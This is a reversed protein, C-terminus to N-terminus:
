LANSKLESKVISGTNLDVTIVLTSGYFTGVPTYVELNHNNFAPFSEVWECGWSENPYVNYQKCLPSSAAIKLAEDKQTQPVNLRTGQDSTEPEAPNPFNNSAMQTSGSSSLSDLLSNQNNSCPSSIMSSTSPMISPIQSTKGTTTSIPSIYSIPTVSLPNSVTLGSSFMNFPQFATSSVPFSMLSGFHFPMSLAGASTSLTLLAFIILVVRLGRM